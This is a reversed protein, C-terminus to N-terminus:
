SPPRTIAGRYSTPLPTARGVSRLTSPMATSPPSASSSKVPTTTAPFSRSSSRPPLSPSRAKRPTVGASEDWIENHECEGKIKELAEPHHWQWAPHTAARRKIESWLMVKQTFLRAESKRAFPRM